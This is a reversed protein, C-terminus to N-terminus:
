FLFKLFIGFIIVLSFVMLKDELTNLGEKIFGEICLLPVLLALIKLILIVIIMFNYM